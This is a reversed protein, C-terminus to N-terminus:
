DSYTLDFNENCTGSYAFPLKFSCFDNKNDMCTKDAQCYLYGAATCSFCYNNFEPIMKANVSPIISPNFLFCYGPMKSRYDWGKPIMEKPPPQCTESM